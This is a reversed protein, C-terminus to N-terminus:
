LRSTSCNMKNSRIMKEVETLGCRNKRSLQEIEDDQKDTQIVRGGCRADVSM